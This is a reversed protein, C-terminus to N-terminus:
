ARTEEAVREVVGGTLIRLRHGRWQVTDGAAIHLWLPVAMLERVLWYLPALPPPRRNVTHLIVLDCASAIVWHTLLCTLASLGFLTHFAFYGIFGSILTSWLPEILFPIPAQAKRIRGWRLHRHWFDRVSMKGLNQHVPDSAIAIRLNLRRVAEGAMFDEALYRGLARIGGFRAAMSRRFIMCKGMVPARGITELLCMGRVYFTNLFVSELGSGIGRGGRGAVVATLIGVGPDIEAMLRKLTDPKVRVNSDSIWIWDNQAAEYALALNNVKPNPGIEIDGIMLRAPVRPYTRLLKRVIDCAPDAESAVCFIIEFRPYDLAFYGALNEELGADVGKLPKLISVGM